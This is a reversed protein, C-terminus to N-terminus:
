DNKLEENELTHIMKLVARLGQRYGELYEKPVNLNHKNCAMELYKGNELHTIIIKKLENNNTM